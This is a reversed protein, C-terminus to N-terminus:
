TVLLRFLRSEARGKRGGRLRREKTFPNCASHSRLVWILLKCDLRGIGMLLRYPAWPRRRLLRSTLPVRGRTSRLWWRPTVGPRQQSGSNQGWKTENILIGWTPDGPWSYAWFPCPDWPHDLLEQMGAWPRFHARQLPLQQAMPSHLGQSVASHVVAPHPSCSESHAVCFSSSNKISHSLLCHLSM